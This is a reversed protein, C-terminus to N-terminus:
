TPTIAAPTAPTNANLARPTNSASLNNRDNNITNNNNNNNNNNVNLQTHKLWWALQKVWLGKHGAHKLPLPAV